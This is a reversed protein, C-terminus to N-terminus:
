TILKLKRKICKMNKKSCYSEEKTPKFKKKFNGM